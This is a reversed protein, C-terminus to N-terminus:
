NQDGKILLGVMCSMKKKTYQVKKEKMLSLKRASKKAVEKIQEYNKLCRRIQNPQVKWINGTEYAIDAIRLKQIVVQKRKRM